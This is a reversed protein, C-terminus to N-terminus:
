KKQIKVQFYGLYYIVLHLDGVFHLKCLKSFYM